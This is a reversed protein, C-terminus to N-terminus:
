KVMPPMARVTIRSNIYSFFPNEARYQVPPFDIMLGCQRDLISKEFFTSEGRGERRVGTVPL